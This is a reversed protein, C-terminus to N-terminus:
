LDLDDSDDLDSEDMRMDRKLSRALSAYRSGSSFSLKTCIDGPLADKSNWLQGLLWSAREMAPSHDWWVQKGPDVFDVQVLEWWENETGWSSKLAKILADQLHGPAHGERNENTKM